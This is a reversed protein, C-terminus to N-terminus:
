PTFGSRIHELCGLEPSDEGNNHKLDRGEPGTKSSHKRAMPTNVQDKSEVQRGKVNEWVGGKFVKPMSPKQTQPSLTRSDVRPM